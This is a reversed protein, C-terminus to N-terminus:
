LSPLFGAGHQLQGTRLDPLPLYGSIGHFGSAARGSELYECIKDQQLQLETLQERVISLAMETSDTQAVKDEKIKITYEGLWQSMAKVVEAELFDCKITRCDCGRTPYRYWPSTNQTKTPVNRKM